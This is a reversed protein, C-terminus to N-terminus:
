GWLMVYLKAMSEKVHMEADHHKRDLYKWEEADIRKVTVKGTTDEPIDNLRPNNYAGLKGKMLSDSADMKYKVSAHVTFAEKSHECDKGM